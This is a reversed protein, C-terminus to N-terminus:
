RDRPRRQSRRNSPTAGKRAPQPAQGQRPALGEAFPRGVWASTVRPMNLTGPVVAAAPLINATFQWQSYQSAGLFTKVSTEDSRSRVGIIPGATRQRGLNSARGSPASAGTLDGPAQEPAVAGAARRRRGRRDRSVQAFILGWEGSDTMPDEWLQRISRPRVELLEELRVPYRGFRLQFIRIAEAYQLGRFILEEEKDRRVIQTWYPLVAALLITMVSFIIVLAVLTYGRPRHDRLSASQRPRFMHRATRVM